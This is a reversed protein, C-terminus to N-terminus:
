AYPDPSGKVFSWDAPAPLIYFASAFVQFEQNLLLGTSDPDAWTFTSIKDTATVNIPVSKSGLTKTVGGPQFDVRGLLPSVGQLQLFTKGGCTPVCAWELSVPTYLGKGAESSPEWYEEVILSAAPGALFFDFQVHNDGNHGIRQGPMVPNAVCPGVGIVDCNTRPSGVGEGCEESLLVVYNGSCSIFGKYRLTQMYPKGFVVQNLQIKTVGPAVGAKVEISQQQTDYLPKSAKVFYVGPQLDSVSFGGSADTTFTKNFGNGTILVTAAKIPRIAEDVVVGRIGGTSDTVKVEPPETFSGNSTSDSAQTACGALIFCAALLPAALFAKM